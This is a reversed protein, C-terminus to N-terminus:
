TNRAKAARALGGSKARARRNARRVHGLGRIADSCIELAYATAGEELIRTIPWGRVMAAGELLGRVAPKPRWSIIESREDQPLTSRKRPM